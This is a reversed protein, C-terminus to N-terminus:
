AVKALDTADPEFELRSGIRSYSYSSTDSANFCFLGAASENRWLGGVRLVRWGTGSDVYDPIYTADSGGVASPAYAWQLTATPNAINTPWGNSSLTMGSDTYNTTTDDAYNAPNTCYYMRRNNFNVGDVWEWVNGWPNEVWRYQVATKGDTGAARGTHYTMANTGGTKIAESNNDVYGRGIKAQSNWDAFEVLYLYWLAGWVAYGRQYWKSGRAHSQTRATARTVNVQPNLGSRSAYGNSNGTEYRAIFKGSGPHKVFGETSSDAIYFCITDGSVATRVYFEPIWVVTDKTTQSFGGQGQKVTIANNEVNYRAIDKWPAFNDFPSSGLGTGVAPVPNAQVNETVIKLPDSAPTLRTLATSSGRAWQVGFISAMKAAVEVTKATPENYNSDSAQTVTITTTGTKLATITLVKGQLTTTVIGSPAAAVSLAGTSPTTIQVQATPHQANLTVANQSLQLVPTAKAISWTAARTETGGNSWAYNSTPTFQATHSGAAIASTEGSISLKQSDFNNWQPTLSSGTYILTGSQTPTIATPQRRIQWSVSKAASTGDSWHYGEKPTFIASYTGANTGSTQGSLTLTEPNYNDWQPSQVSGSYVLEEKPSPVVDITHTLDTILQLAQTADAQAKQIATRLPPHAQSDANHATIQSAPEQVIGQEIRNMDEAYVTQDDQWTKPTFSM